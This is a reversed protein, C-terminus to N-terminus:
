ETENDKEKVIVTRKEKCLFQLVNKLNFGM